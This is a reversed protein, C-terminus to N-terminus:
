PGTVAKATLLGPFWHSFLRQSSPPRTFGTLQAQSWPLTATYPGSGAAVGEDNRRNVVISRRLRGM